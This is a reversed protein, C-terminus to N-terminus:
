FPVPQTQELSGDATVSALLVGGLEASTRRASKEHVQALLTGATRSHLLVFDGVLVPADLSIEGVFRRGDVSAVPPIAAPSPEATTVRGALVGPIRHADGAAPSTPRGPGRIM